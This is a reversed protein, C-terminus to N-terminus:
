QHWRAHETAGRAPAARAKSGADRRRWARHCSREPKTPLGGTRAGRRGHWRRLKGHPRAEPLKCVGSHKPQRTRGWLTSNCHQLLGCANIIRSTASAASDPAHCLRLLHMAVRHSRSNAGRCACGKRGAQLCPRHRAASATPWWPLAGAREARTSINARVRHHRWEVGAIQLHAM